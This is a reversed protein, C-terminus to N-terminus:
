CGRGRCATTTRSAPSPRGPGPSTSPTWRRGRRRRLPGDPSVEDPVRGFYTRSCRRAAAGAAGADLEAAACARPPPPTARAVAHDDEAYDPRRRRHRREDGAAQGARGPRRVADRWIGALPIVRDGERRPHPQRHRPRSPAKPLLVGARRPRAAAVAGADRALDEARALPRLLAASCRPPRRTPAWSARRPPSWRATSSWTTVAVRPPRRVALGVARHGGPEGFVRLYYLGPDRGRERDFRIAFGETHDLVNELGMVTAVTVYGAASLAPAGAAGDGRRQQAPRQQHLTLGGHDTPTYFWRRREADREADPHPGAWVGVSRQEDTLTEIWALAATSM